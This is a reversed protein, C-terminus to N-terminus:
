MWLPAWPHKTSVYQCIGQLHWVSYGPLLTGGELPHSHDRHQRGVQPVLPLIIEAGCLHIQQPLSFCWIYPTRTPRGHGRTMGKQYFCYHHTHYQKLSLVLNRVWGHTTAEADRTYIKSGTAKTICLLENTRVWKKCRLPTTTKWLLASRSQDLLKMTMNGCM